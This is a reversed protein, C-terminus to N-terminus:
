LYFLSLRPVGCKERLRKLLLNAFTTQYITPEMKSKYVAIQARAQKEEEALQAPSFCSRLEENLLNELQTLADELREASPTVATRWEGILEDLRGVVRASAQCFAPSLAVDPPSSVDRMGALADRRSTLHALVQAAPFAADSSSTSSSAVPSAANKKEGIKNEGKVSAGNGNATAESGISDSGESRGVQSELWEAFQVEVEEACYFLTKISRRRAAVPRSEHSDFTREIGRLAVHLPVGKQKWSEILTWDMPSLLLTKGRRRLFYDEVETFYDFYNM